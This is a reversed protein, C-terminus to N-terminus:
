RTAHKYAERDARGMRYAHNHSLSLNLRGMASDNWGKQYDSISPDQGSQAMMAATKGMRRGGYMLVEHSM